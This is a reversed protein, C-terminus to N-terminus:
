SESINMEALNNRLTNIAKSVHSRATDEACNLKYAIAKYDAQEMYRMVIAMAQQEPLKAIEKRVLNLTEADIVEEYVPHGTPTADPIQGNKGIRNRWAKSNASLAIRYIYAGTQGGRSADPSTEGDARGIASPGTLKDLNMWIALFAYQIAEDFIDTNCTLKWLTNTLYGIYENKLKEFLELRKSYRM